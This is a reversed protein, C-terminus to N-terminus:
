VPPRMTQKQQLILPILDLVPKVILYTRRKPQHAEDDSTGEASIDDNIISSIQRKTQLTPMPGPLPVPMQM